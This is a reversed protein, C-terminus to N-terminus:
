SIIDRNVSPINGRISNTKDITTLLLISEEILSIEFQIFYKSITNLYM